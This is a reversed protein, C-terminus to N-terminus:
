RPCMLSSPCSDRGPTRPHPGGRGRRGLTALTLHDARRPQRTGTNLRATRRNLEAEHAHVLWAEPAQAHVAATQLRFKGAITGSTSDLSGRVTLHATNDCPGTMVVRRRQVGDMACHFTELNDTLVVTM